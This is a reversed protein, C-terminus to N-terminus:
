RRARIAIGALELAERVQRALRAAGPTDGHVCISEAVVPVTTGDAAVVSRERVMGVARATVTAPDAIVAGAVSRPVLSGDARYARDAFVESVTDLGARRGAAILESGSLGFLILAPEVSRVAEAVADAIQPDRAALNYLSGHPKVHRLPVGREAAVRGLAAVQTAVLRFVDVASTPHDARGFTARDGVSPHAGIAVASAAALEVTATMSAVNGAHVGCAINASSIVAMLEAEGSPPSSEWEGVDANLDVVIV